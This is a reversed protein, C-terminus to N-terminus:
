DSIHQDSIFSQCPERQLEEIGETVVGTWRRELWISDEPENVGETPLDGEAQPGVNRVAVRRSYQLFDM